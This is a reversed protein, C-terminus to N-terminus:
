NKNLAPINERYYNISEKIEELSFEQDYIATGAGKLISLNIKGHSNKKDQIVLPLIHEIDEDTFSVIPFITNFHKNINNLVHEDILDKKLSLYSECIMGVAIAEGHLLKNEGKELFYSEIAHGITHGFNLIKRVGYEFPDEEVVDAKIEISHPIVVDWEIQNLDEIKKLQKWHDKDKILAHKVVEAYGSVLERDTLTNLFNPYVVVKRPMKFVGIHNKFGKFDIGLKGGVSADVQSLLTTPMQVFDIGRKFTAACFGGMDGIVGGGLNILISKRDVSEDTLFQWILECTKLNKNEEGSEIQFVTHNAPLYEKILPYCHKKTNEDALLCVKSYNKLFDFVSHDLSKYVLVNPAVEVAKM